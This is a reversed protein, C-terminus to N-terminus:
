VMKIIILIFVIAGVVILLNSLIIGINIALYIKTMKKPDKLVEELDYNSM